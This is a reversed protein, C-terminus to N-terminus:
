HRVLQLHPLKIFGAAGRTRTLSQLPCLQSQAAFVAGFASREIGSATLSDVERATDRTHFTFVFVGNSRPVVFLRFPQACAKVSLATFKGINQRL